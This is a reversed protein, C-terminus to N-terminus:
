TASNKFTIFEDVAIIMWGCFATINATFAGSNGLSYYAFINFLVILVVFVPLAFRFYRIM